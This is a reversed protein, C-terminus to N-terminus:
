SPWREREVWCSAYSGGATAAGAGSGGSSEHSAMAATARAASFVRQAAEYLPPDADGFLKLM